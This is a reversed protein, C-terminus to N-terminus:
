RGALEDDRIVKFGYTADLAVTTPTCVGTKVMFLSAPDAYWMLAPRAEGANPVRFSKLQDELYVPNVRGFSRVQEKTIFKTIGLEYGTHGLAMYSPMFYEYAVAFVDTWGLGDPAAATVFNYAETLDMDTSGAVPFPNTNTLADAASSYIILSNLRYMKEGPAVPLGTTATTDTYFTGTRAIPDTITYPAAPELRESPVFGQGSLFFEFETKSMTLTKDPSSSNDQPYVEALIFQVGTVPMLRGTFRPDALKELESSYKDFVLKEAPELGVTWAKKQLANWGGYPLVSAEVASPMFHTAYFELSGTQQSVYYNIGKGAYVPNTEADVKSLPEDYAPVAAVVYETNSKLYPAAATLDFTLSDLSWDRGDFEILGGTLSLSGATAAAEPREKVLSTVYTKITGPRRAGSLLQHTNLLGM